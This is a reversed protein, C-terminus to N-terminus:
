AAGRRKSLRRAVASGAAYLGFGILCGLTNHFVDDFEAYGRRTVFQLVEIIISFSAGILMAKWWKMKDFACGLLVGVPIFVLVNLIAQLGLHGTGTLISHYSWFPTLIQRREPMTIRFLLVLSVIWILYEVLLFTATWKSDKRKWFFVLVVIAMLFLVVSLVAIDNILLTYSCDEYYKIFIDKM